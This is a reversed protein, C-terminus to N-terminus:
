AQGPHTKRRKRWVFIDLVATVAVLVGAALWLWRGIGRSNSEFTSKGEPPPGASAPRPLPKIGYHKELDFDDSKPVYNEYELYEIDFKRIKTDDAKQYWCNHFKSVPYGRPSDVYAITGIQRIPVNKM